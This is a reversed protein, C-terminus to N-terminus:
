IHMASGHMYKYLRIYEFSLFEMQLSLIIITIVVFCNILRLNFVSKSTKRNNLYIGIIIIIIFFSM